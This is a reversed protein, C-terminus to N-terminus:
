TRAIVTSPRPSLGRRRGTAGYDAPVVAAAVAAAAAGLTHCRAMALRVNMVAARVDPRRALETLDSSTLAHVATSVPAEAVLVLDPQGSELSVALGDLAVTLRDLADSRQTM